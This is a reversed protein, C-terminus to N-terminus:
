SYPRGNTKLTDNLSAVNISRDFRAKSSHARMCGDRDRSRTGIRPKQSHSTATPPEKELWGSPPAAWLIQLGRTGTSSQSKQARLIECRRSFSRIQDFSQPETAIPADLEPPRHQTLDEGGRESFFTFLPQQPRESVGWNDPSPKSQSEKEGCQKLCPPALWSALRPHRKASTCFFPSSPKSSPARKSVFLM